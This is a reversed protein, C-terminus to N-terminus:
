DQKEENDRIELIDDKDRIQNSLLVEFHVANIIISGEINTETFNRLISNRDFKKTFNKNNIINKVRDMTRSLENNKIQM